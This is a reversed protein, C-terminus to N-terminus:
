ADDGGGAPAWAPARLQKGATHVSVVVQSGAAFSFMPRVEPPQDAQSQQDPALGLVSDVYQVARLAAFPNTNAKAVLKEAVEVRKEDSVRKHLLRQYKELSAVPRASLGHVKLLKRVRSVSSQSIGTLSAIQCIPLNTETLLKIVPQHRRTFPQTATPRTEGPPTGRRIQPQDIMQSTIPEQSAM